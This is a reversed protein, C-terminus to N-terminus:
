RESQSRNPSRSEASLVAPAHSSQGSKVIMSGRVKAFRCYISRAAPQLRTSTQGPGLRLSGKYPYALSSGDTAYGATRFDVVVAFPNHNTFRFTAACQAAPSVEMVVNESESVRSYSQAYALPTLVCMSLAVVVFTKM